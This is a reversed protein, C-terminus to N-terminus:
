YPIYIHGLIHEIHWSNHNLFFRAKGRSTAALIWCNRLKPNSIRACRRGGHQSKVQSSSTNTKYVSYFQQSNTHADGRSHRSSATREFDDVVELEQLREKREESYIGPGQSFPFSISM